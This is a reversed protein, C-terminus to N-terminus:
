IYSLATKNALAVYLSSFLDGCVIRILLNLPRMNLDVGM